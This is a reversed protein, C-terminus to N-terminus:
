RAWHLAIRHRHFRRLFIRIYHCFCCYSVAQLLLAVPIRAAIKKAGGREIQAEAYYYRPSHLLLLVFDVRFIM